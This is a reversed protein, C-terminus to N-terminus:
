PISGGSRHWGRTDLFPLTATAGLSTHTLGSTNAGRIPRGRGWRALRTQAADVAATLRDTGRGVLSLLKGIALEATTMAVIPPYPTALPTPHATIMDDVCASAWAIAADIPLPQIVLIRSGATTLDITSGGATASVAFSGDNVATAYYTVGAVLPDPLTGGADARFTVPVDASFGHGDLSITDTGSSVSAIERAPNPLSGRPLGYSYLDDATCYGVIM